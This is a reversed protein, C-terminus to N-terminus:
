STQKHSALKVALQKQKAPLTVKVTETLPPENAPRDGSKKFIDSLTMGSAREKITADVERRSDDSIQTVEGNIIVGDALWPQFVKMGFVYFSFDNVPSSLCTSRLLSLKVRSGEHEISKRAESLIIESPTWEEAYKKAREITQDATLNSFDEYASDAIIKDLVTTTLHTTDVVASAKFARLWSFMSLFANADPGFRQFFRLAVYADAACEQLPHDDDVDPGDPNLVHGEEHWLAHLRM